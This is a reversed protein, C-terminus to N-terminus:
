DSNRLSQSKSWPKGPGGPSSTSRSATFDSIRKYPQVAGICELEHRDCCAESCYALHDNIYWGKKALEDLVDRRSFTCAANNAGFIGRGEGQWPVEYASNLDVPSDCGPCYVKLTLEMKM